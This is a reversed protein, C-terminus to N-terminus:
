KILIFKKTELINESSLRYFYLGSPIENANFNIKYSGPNLEENLLIEVIRGLSNIIELKYNSKIKISFEIITESNFPNPYNQNLDFSEPIESSINQIGVLPEGGNTTHFIKGGPGCTWLISDNFSAINLIYGTNINERQWNIGQNTTKYLRSYNGGIWGISDSSFKISRLAEQVDMVVSIESWNSGFNTTRYVKHTYSAVTFGTFNNIFSVRYLDGSGAITFSTWSSGGNTTKHITAAGDVGIGNLSDKFYMDEPWGFTYSSFFSIGGDTTKKVDGQGMINNEGIWGTLENIFFVSFYNGYVPPGGNEIAVWNDGGNTTKLITSFWGAAYVVNENVPHIGFLPKTPVNTMQQIWNTGGNTTKLITGGVGCSWGTFQNIMEIDYLASTVGSQQIIWQGQAIQSSFYFLIFMLIIKKMM